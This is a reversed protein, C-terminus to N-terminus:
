GRVGEGPHHQNQAQLYRLALGLQKPSITTASYKRAWRLGLSNGAVRSAAYSSGGKLLQVLYPLDFRAETRIILHVHTQLIALGVVEAREKVVKRRLFPDLFAKTPANIM